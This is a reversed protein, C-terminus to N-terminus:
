EVSKSKNSELHEILSELRNLEKYIKIKEEQIESETLEVERFITIEKLLEKNEMFVNEAVTPNENYEGYGEFFSDAQKFESIESLSRANLWM